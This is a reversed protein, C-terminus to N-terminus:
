CLPKMSINSCIALFWLVPFVSFLLHHTLWNESSYMQHYSFTFCPSSLSSWQHSLCSSIIVGRRSLPALNVGRWNFHWSPGSSPHLNKMPAHLSYQLTRMPPPPSSYFPHTLAFNLHPTDKVTGTVSGCCYILKILTSLWLPPSLHCVPTSDSM